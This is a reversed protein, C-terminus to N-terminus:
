CTFRYYEGNLRNCPHCYAYYYGRSYDIRFEKLSKFKKCYPCRKRGSKSLRTRSIVFEDFCPRCLYKGWTNEPQYLYEKRKKCTTCRPVFKRLCPRCLYDSISYKPFSLNKTRKKCGTCKTEM